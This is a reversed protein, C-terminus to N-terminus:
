GLIAIKRKLYITMLPDTTKVQAKRYFEAAKAPNKLAEYARAINVCNLVEFSPARNTKMAMEYSELAKPFNGKAELCAGLGGHALTVLDNDPDAMKIYNQYADIAPDYEKRDFYLNGLRYYATVAAHSKPYKNILEKYSQIAAADGAPSGSKLSSEIVRSYIKDASTEYHLNYLYGGGALLFILFLVGAVAYIKTRYQNVFERIRLFFIQLKDPEMLEKKDIKIAM